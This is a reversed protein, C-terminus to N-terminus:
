DRPGRMLSPSDLPQWGHCTCAAASCESPYTKCGGVWRDKRLLGGWAGRHRHQHLLTESGPGQSGAAPRSQSAHGAGRCAACGSLCCSTSSCPGTPQRTPSLHVPQICCATELCAKPATCCARRLLLLVGLMPRLGALCGRVLSLLQAICCCSVASRDDQTLTTAPISPLWPAAACTLVRARHMADAAIRTCPAHCIVRISRQLHAVSVCAAAGSSREGMSRGFVLVVRDQESWLSTIDIPSPEGALYVQCGQLTSKSCCGAASIPPRALAASPAHPLKSWFPNCSQRQHSRIMELAYM